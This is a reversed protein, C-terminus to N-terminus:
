LLQFLNGTDRAKLYDFLQGFTALNGLDQYRRVREWEDQIHDIRPKSELGQNGSVVQQWPTSVPAATYIEMQYGGLNMAQVMGLMARLLQHPQALIVGSRWEMQKSLELFADNEQRAHFAMTNPFIINETPIGQTLLNNICWTKGPNAEFPVTSGYREGENKTVAIFRVRGRRLMEEAMEFLGTYDGFSRNHFLLADVPKRPQGSLVMVTAQCFKAADIFNEVSM